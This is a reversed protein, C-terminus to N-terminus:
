FHYGLAIAFSHSVHSSGMVDFIYAPSIDVHKNPKYIYEVGFRRVLINESKEFEYGLGAFVGFDFLEYSITATTLFANKRIKSLGNEDKLIYSMLEIENAWKISFEKNFFYQIEIGDTPILQSPSDESEHYEHMPIYTQSYTGALRIKGQHSELLSESHSVNSLEQGVLMVPVLFTLFFINKMMKM